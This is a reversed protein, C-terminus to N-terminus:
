SNEEEIRKRLRKLEQASVKGRQVLNLMLLEPSGHFFRGLLRTIAKDREEDRGVRPRYVYARGEQTHELYGKQELIRLTTLVTSYALPEHKPLSEVVSSVTAQGKEWLVEMLKLEADTLTTSKKRAM